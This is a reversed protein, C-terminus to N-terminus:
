GQMILFCVLYFKKKKHKNMFVAIAMEFQPKYHDMINNLINQLYLNM